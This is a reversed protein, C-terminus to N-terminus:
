LQSDRLVAHATMSSQKRPKLRGGLTKLEHMIDLADSVRSDRRMGLILERGLTALAFELVERWFSSVCMKCAECGRDGRLSLCSMM